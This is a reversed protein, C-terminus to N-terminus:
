MATVEQTQVEQFDTSTVINGQQTVTKINHKRSRIFQRAEKATVSRVGVESPPALSLGELENVVSCLDHLILYYLCVVTQCCM